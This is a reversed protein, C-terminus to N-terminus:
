SVQTINEQEILDMLEQIKHTPYDSFHKFMRHFELSENYLFDERDDNFSISSLSKNIQNASEIIRKAHNNLTPNKFRIDCVFMQYEITIMTACLSVFRIYDLVQQEKEPTYLVKHKPIM